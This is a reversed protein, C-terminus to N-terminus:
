NTNPTFSTATAAAPADLEDRLRQMQPLMAGRAAIADLESRLETIEAASLKGARLLEAREVFYHEHKDTGFAMKYGVPRTFAWLWAVPWLLGGFM